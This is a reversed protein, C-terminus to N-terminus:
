SLLNLLGAEEGVASAAAAHKFASIKNDTTARMAHTTKM